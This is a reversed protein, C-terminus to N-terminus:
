GLLAAAREAITLDISAMPDADGLFWSASLGTWAVIWQLLRRQPLGSAQTVVQLRREFMGPRTAVPRAPDSLDPNTFINAYDFGREGLLGQPDIALWGRAGFDLVNDHHIDGHLPVVGQPSALLEVAIEACRTLIGGHTAAMPALAHFQEALPKLPPPRGPRPAHLRAITACLIRSAEDDEAGRAMDALARTGTAREMLLAAGNSDRALVQAAGDGGWWDLLQVGRREEPEHLLKLMAPQGAQRVPLLDAGRTHIPDGDAILNWSALWPVFGDRGRGPM